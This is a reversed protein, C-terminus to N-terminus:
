LHFEARLCQMMKRLHHSKPVTLWEFWGKHWDTDCLMWHKRTIWSCSKPLIHCYLYSFEKCKMQQSSDDSFRLDALIPTCIRQQNSGYEIIDHRSITVLWYHFEKVKIIIREIISSVRVPVTKELDSWQNFMQDFSKSLRINSTMFNQNIFFQHEPFTSESKFLVDWIWLLHWNLM